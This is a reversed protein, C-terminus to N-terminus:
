RRSRSRSRDGRQFRRDTRAVREADSHESTDGVPTEDDVGIGPFPDSEAAATTERRGGDGDGVTKARSTAVILTVATLPVIGAALAALAYEGGSIVAVAACVLYFAATAPVLWAVGTPIPRHSWRGFAFYMSLGFACLVLAIGPFLAQPNYDAGNYGVLILLSGGFMMVWVLPPWRSM